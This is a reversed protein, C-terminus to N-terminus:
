YWGLILSCAFFTVSRIMFWNWFFHNSLVILTFGQFLMSVDLWSLDSISDANEVEVNNASLLYIHSFFPEHYSKVLYLMYHDSHLMCTVVTQTTWFVVAVLKHTQTQEWFQLIFRFPSEEIFTTVSFHVIFYYRGLLHQVNILVEKHHFGSVDSSDSSLTSLIFIM